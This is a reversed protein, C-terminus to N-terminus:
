QFFHKIWEYPQYFIIRPGSYRMVRKVRKRMDPAYCPRTCRRCPNKHVGYPCHELRKNAYAMLERCENCPRKKHHNKGCYFTIMWGITKKEKEIRDM